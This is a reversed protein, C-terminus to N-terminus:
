IQHQAIEAVCQEIVAFFERFGVPKVIFHDFKFDKAVADKMAAKGTCGTLVILKTDPKISRINVVLQFGGMEPMNIDTIVIDPTHTKFLELGTRGNIAMYLPVDPLREGLMAALIERTLDDDEVILISISPSPNSISEM